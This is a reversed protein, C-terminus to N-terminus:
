NSISGDEACQLFTVLARKRVRVARGLRVVPLEGAAIWRRVTRVSVRCQRAIEDVTLLTMEGPAAGDSEDMSGHESGLNV